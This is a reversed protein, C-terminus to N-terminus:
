RGQALTAPIETPLGNPPGAGLACDDINPRQRMDGHMEGEKGTEPSPDQLLQTAM